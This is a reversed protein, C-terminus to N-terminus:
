VSRIDAGGTHNRHSDDHQDDEYSCGQIFGLSFSEYVIRLVRVAYHTKPVAQAGECARCKEQRYKCQATVGVTQLAQLGHAGGQLGYAALCHDEAYYGVGKDLGTVTLCLTCSLTLNCRLVFCWGTHRQM